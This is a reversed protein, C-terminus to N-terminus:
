RKTPKEEDTGDTDLKALAVSTLRLENLAEVVDASVRPDATARELAATALALHQKVVDRQDVWAM